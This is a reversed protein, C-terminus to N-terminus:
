SGIFGNGLPMGQSVDAGSVHFRNTEPNAGKRTM